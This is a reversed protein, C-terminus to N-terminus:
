INTETETTEVEETSTAIEEDPSEEEETEVPTEESTTGTGPEAPTIEVPTEGTVENPLIGLLRAADRALNFAELAAGEAASVDKPDLALAEAASTAALKALVLAEEAKERTALDFEPTTTAL